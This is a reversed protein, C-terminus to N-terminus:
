FKNSKLLNEEATLLQLNTYHNLSIVENENKAFSVPIIHDIHYKGKELFDETKFDPYKLKANEFLHNKLEEFSCGLIKFTKTRKTFGQKKLSIRILGRINNILKFLPDKNRREVGYKNKVKRIRKKNKQYYEKQYQKLYEKNEEYRQKAKIKNIKYSDKDPNYYKKDCEKCSCQLGDKARRDKSFKKIPKSTKCRSCIKEM